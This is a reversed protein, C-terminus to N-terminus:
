APAATREPTQLGARRMGPRGWGGIGPLCPRRLEPGLRVALRGEAGRKPEDM